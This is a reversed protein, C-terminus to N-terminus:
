ALTVELLPLERGPISGSATAGIRVAGMARYFGEANPDADITLTTFGARRATAIMRDYLLRGVGQGIFPPDVFLAGLEGAPPEGDLAAYGAPQGDPAQAVLARGASLREPGFTLEARCAAMFAEDYGWHAKSRLALASLVAAEAPRAARIRM